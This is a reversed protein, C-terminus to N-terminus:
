APVEHHTLAYGRETYHKWRQRGAQVDDPDTSILEIVRKFSEFGPAVRDGLNVLVDHHPPENGTPVLWVPTAAYRANGDVRASQLCHPLFETPDFTWLMRDFTALTAPSATVIVRSGSRYAKRILRCAYGLKDPVRSHFGVQIM